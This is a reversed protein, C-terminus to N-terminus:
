EEAFKKLKEELKRQPRETIRAEDPGHGMERLAERVVEEKQADIDACSRIKGSGIRAMMDAHIHLAYREGNVYGPDLRTILDYPKVRVAQSAEKGAERLYPLAVRGAKRLARDAEDAKKPGGLDAVLPRIREGTSRIREVIRDTRGPVNASRVAEVVDPGRCALEDAGRGQVEFSEHSLMEILVPVSERWIPRADQASAWFALLVRM